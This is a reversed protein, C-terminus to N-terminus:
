RCLRDPRHRHERRRHHGRGAAWPQPALAGAAGAPPQGRPLDGGAHVRRQGGRGLQGPRRVAGQEGRRSRGAAARHGTAGDGDVVVRLLQRKGAPIVEVAELELDFQALIPTLVGPLQSQKMTSDKSGTPGRLQTPLMGGPRPYRRCTRSGNVILRRRSSPSPSPRGRSAPHVSPSGSMSSGSRVGGATPGVGGMGVGGGRGVGVTAPARRAAVVSSPRAPSARAIRVPGCGRRATLAVLSRQQLEHGLGVPRVGGGEVGARRWGLRRCDGLQGQPLRQGPQSPLWVAAATLWRAAASATLPRSAAQPEAGHGGGGAEVGPHDGRVSRHRGALGRWGWRRERQRGIDLRDLRQDGLQVGQDVAVLQGDAPQRHGAVPVVLRDGLQQLVPDPAVPQDGPEGATPRPAPARAPTGARPRAAPRRSSRSVSGCWAPPGAATRHWRARPWGAIGLPLPGQAGEGRMTSRARAQFAGSGTQGPQADSRCADSLSRGARDPRGLSPSVSKTARARFSPRPERRSRARAPVIRPPAAAAGGRVGGGAM